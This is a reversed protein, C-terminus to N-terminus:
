YGGAPAYAYQPMYMMQPQPMYMMQPQQMPYGQPGLPRAGGMLQMQPLAQPMTPMQAAQMQPMQMQPMQMLQQMNLQPLQQQMQQQWYPMQQQIGANLQEVAQPPIQAMMKSAHSQLKQQMTMVANSFEPPMKAMMSNIRELIQDPHQMVYNVSGEVLDKVDTVLEERKQPTMTNVLDQAVMFLEQPTKKETQNAARLSEPLAHVVKDVKTQLMNKFEPPLDNVVNMANSKIQDKVPQPLKHVSEAAENMIMAPEIVQKAMDAMQSMGAGFQSLAGGMM